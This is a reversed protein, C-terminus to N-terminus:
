KLTKGTDKIRCFIKIKMNIKKFINEFEKKMIDNYNLVSIISCRLCEDDDDDDDDDDNKPNLTAKKNGLWKPSKICSGGRKLSLRHLKYDLIDVSEFVFDSRKIIKLKQQYNHLFSKFIERIIDYTDAGQMISVKDSWVYYICTGGTDRSSIFNVHMNNPNEM